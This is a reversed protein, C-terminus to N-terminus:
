EWEDIKIDTEEIGEDLLFRKFYQIMQPPGSLFFVPNALMKGKQRIHDTSIMGQHILPNQFPLDSGSAEEIFLDFSYGELEDLCRMLVTEQLIHTRKRVGYILQIQKHVPHALIENLYSLYPSIGTGGAILVISQDENVSKNIVFEGYPLKLWVSSGVDLSTSMRQTFSGKVSYNIVIKDDFRSSAISFVRSEPWFGGQPDYEDIALHLFQGPNFKPLRRDSSFVLTYIGDGHDQIEIVTAPIKIPNPM